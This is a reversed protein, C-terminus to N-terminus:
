SYCGADYHFNLWEFIISKVWDPDEIDKIDVSGNLVNKILDDPVVHVANKTHSQIVWHEDKRHMSIDIVDNM